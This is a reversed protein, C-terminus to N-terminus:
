RNSIDYHARINGVSNRVSNVIRSNTTWRGLASFVTAPLSQLGGSITGSNLADRKAQASQGPASIAGPHDSRIIVQFLDLLSSGEMIASTPDHVASSYYTPSLRQSPNQTTEITCEGAMYAEAFGLDGSLLIRLFFASSHIHITVHPGSAADTDIQKLNATIAVGTFPVSSANAPGSTQSLEALKTSSLRPTSAGSVLTTTSSSISSAPRLSARDDDSSSDVDETVGVVDKETVGRDRLGEAGTSGASTWERGDPLVLTLKGYRVQKELVRVVGREIVGALPSYESSAAVSGVRLVVDSALGVASNSLTLATTLPAALAHYIASMTVLSGCIISSLRFVFLSWRYVVYLCGTSAAWGLGLLRAFPRSSAPRPEGARAREGLYPSRRDRM